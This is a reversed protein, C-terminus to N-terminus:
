RQGANRQYVRFTPNVYTMDLATFWSAFNLGALVPEVKVEHVVTFGAATMARYFDAHDKDPHRDQLREMSAYLHQHLLVHTLANDAFATTFDNDKRDLRISGNCRSDGFEVQYMEEAEYAKVQLLCQSPQVNEVVWAKALERVNTGAEMKLYALVAWLTVVVALAFGAAALRPGRRQALWMVGEAVAVALFPLLPLTYRVVVWSTIAVFVLYPLLAVLLLCDMLQRRWVILVLSGLAIVYFPYGLAQHLMSWGYQWWGPGRGVADAFGSSQFLFQIKMGAVFVPFHTFTDPSTLAYGLLLLAACLPLTSPLLRQWFQQLFAQQARLLWALLPLAFFVVLPFRFALSVGAFLAAGLLYHHARREEAAKSIKAALLFQVVVLMAGIEDPRMQQATIVHAPMVALVLAAVLATVEDRLTRVAEYLLLLTLLAVYVMFYRALLLTDALANFQGLWPSLLKALPIFAAAVRFYLSGGYIFQQPQVRGERLLEAQVLSPAEDPHYSTIDHTADPLGWEIGHLRLGLALLLIGLLLLRTRSLTLTM